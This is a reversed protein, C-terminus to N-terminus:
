AKVEVRIPLGTEPDDGFLWGVYVGPPADDPVPVTVDVRRPSAGDAAVEVRITAGRIPPGHPHTLDTSRLPPADAGDEFHLWATAVDEEGRRIPGVTIVAPGPAPGPAVAGVAADLLSRSWDAYLDILREADARVQRAQAGDGTAPLGNIRFDPARRSLELLREVVMSATELGLRAADAFSSAWRDREGTV